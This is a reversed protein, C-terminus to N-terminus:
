DLRPLRWGYESTDPIAVLGRDKPTLKKLVIDQMDGIVQPSDSVYSHGYARRIPAATSADISDLGTYIDLKPESEGVRRYSHIIKSVKLAFDNSAAYITMHTGSNRLETFAYALDRFEIENFDAAALLLESVKAVDVGRARLAAVAPIVIRTGMSHAVIYVRRIKTSLLDVLLKEFRRASIRVSDEDTWYDTIAGGSPWSYLMAKGPFELDHALQATRLAADAFTVNFGHVFLLLSSDPGAGADNMDKLLAERNSERIERLVFYRAPDPQSVFQWWSPVSLEGKSRKTPITVNVTGYSFETFNPDLKGTFFTYPDKNSPGVKSRDNLRDTAYSVNFEVFNAVRADPGRLVPDRLANLRKCELREVVRLLNVQVLRLEKAASAASATAKDGFSKIKAQLAGARAEYKFRDAELRAEEKPSLPTSCVAFESEFALALNQAYSRGAGLWAFCAALVLVSERRIAM